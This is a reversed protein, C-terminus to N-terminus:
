AEKLKQHTEATSPSIQGAEPIEKGTAIWYGFEPWAKSIAQCYWAPALQKGQEINALQGAAIEAKKAFEDRSLKLFERLEKIRNNIEKEM